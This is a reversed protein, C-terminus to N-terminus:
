AKLREYLFYYVKALYGHIISRKFNIYITAKKSNVYRFNSLKERKSLVIGDDYMSMDHELKTNLVNVPINLKSLNIFFDTDIGYLNLSEDFLPSFIDCLKRNIVMGSTIALLKPHLGPNISNLHKGVVIGMRAPSKLAGNVYIQPIHVLYDRQLEQELEAFYVRNYVTDDDSIIIFDLKNENIIKNYVYSLPCNKKETRYTINNNTAYNQNQELIKEDDSNDWVIVDFNEFTRQSEKVSNVAVNVELKKNYIVVLLKLIM